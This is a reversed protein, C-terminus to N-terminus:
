RMRERTDNYGDNWEIWDFSLIFYPNKKAGRLAAACGEDYPTM